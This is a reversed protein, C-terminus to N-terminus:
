RESRVGAQTKEEFDGEKQYRNNKAPSPPSYRMAAPPPRQTGHCFVLLLLARASRIGYGMQGTVHEFLMIALLRRGMQLQSEFSLIVQAKEFIM